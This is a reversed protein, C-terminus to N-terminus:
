DDFVLIDIDIEFPHIIALKDPQMQTVAESLFSNRSRPLPRRSCLLFLISDVGISSFIEFRRIEERYSDPDFFYQIDFNSDPTRQIM